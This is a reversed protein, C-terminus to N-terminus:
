KVKLRKDILINMAVIVIIVFSTAHSTLLNSFVGFSILLSIFMISITSSLTKSIRCRYVVFATLCGYVFVGIYGFDIFPEYLYTYFANISVEFGKNSMGFYLFSDQNLYDSQMYTKTGFMIYLPIALLYSMSGFTATGFWSDGINWDNNIIHNEFLIFGYTHYGVLYAYLSQSTTTDGGRVTSIYVMLFLLGGSIILLKGIKIKGTASLMFCSLLFLRYIPFRGMFIVSSMLVCVFPAIVYRKKGTNVFLFIGILVSLLECGSVIFRYVVILSSFPFLPSSGESGLVLRRYEYPNVDNFVQYAKLSIPVNAVLTVAICCWFLKVWENPISIVDVKIEDMKGVPLLLSVLLFGISYSIFVVNVYTLEFSLYLLDLNAM